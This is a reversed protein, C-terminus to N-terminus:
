PSRGAGGRANRGGGEVAPVPPGSSACLALTVPGVVLAVVMPVAVISDNVALGVVSLVLTARHMPLLFGHVDYAERLLVPPRALVWALLITAAAAAVTHPGMTLLDLSADAKRRITDLAGGDLSTGVFRGFHSRQGAPRLYDLAGIIVAVAAGGLCVLAAHRPRVRRGAVRLALVGFVPVLTLVGGVDAGWQPWGDVIVVPVGVLAVGAAARVPSRGHAALAGLVVASAGLVAFAINGLGVFRGAVLPNYGLLSDIQLRAGTVVDAVLLLLSAVAITVVEAVARRPGGSRAGVVTALAWLAAACAAVVAAVAAAPAESRWWPVLNAVFTSAPVAAVGVALSRLAAVARAPVAHGRRRRHLLVGLSGCVAVVVAGLGAFFPAVVARHAGARVDREILARRVGALSEPRGPDGGVMPRGAVEDPAAGRVVAAITPAV